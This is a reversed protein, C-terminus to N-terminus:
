TPTFPVPVKRLIYFLGVSLYNVLRACCLLLACIAHSSRPTRCQRSRFTGQRRCAASTPKILRNGPTIFDPLRCFDVSKEERERLGAAINGAARYSM